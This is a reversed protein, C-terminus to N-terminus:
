MRRMVMACKKNYLPDQKVSYSIGPYTWDKLNDLPASWVEYDELCYSEGGESDHSGFLYVRNGFVHAEGDAIYKNLPLFPNFVQKM